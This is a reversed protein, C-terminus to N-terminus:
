PYTRQQGEPYRFEVREFGSLRPGSQSVAALTLFQQVAAEPAKTRFSVEFSGGGPTKVVGNTPTAPKGVNGIFFWRVDAATETLNRVEFTADLMGDNITFSKQRIELEETPYLYAEQSEITMVVVDPNREDYFEVPTNSLLPEEFPPWGTSAKRMVLPKKNYIRMGTDLLEIELFLQTEVSAPFFQAGDASLSRLRVESTYNPNYRLRLAGAKPDNTYYEGNTLYRLVRETRSVPIVTANVVSRVDLHRAILSGDSVCAGGGPVRFTREDPGLIEPRLGVVVRDGVRGGVRPRVVVPDDGLPRVLMNGTFPDSSIDARGSEVVFSVTGRAPQRQATGDRDVRETYTAVVIQGDIADLPTAVVRSDERKAYAGHQCGCVAVFVAISVIAQVFRM